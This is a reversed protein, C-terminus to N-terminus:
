KQSPNPTVIDIWEGVRVHHYKDGFRLKFREIVQDSTDHGGLAIAGLNQKTLLDLDREMTELTIPKHPGEGSAFRRQLNIGLFSLRGEPLPYHLDGVLGYLPASFVKASHDLIKPVTQHGCGIIIVNGKGEVNIVLAQEEIRGIALQRPIVGLSAMGEAIITAKPTITVEANPYVTPVPSYIKKKSLDVQEKGISFTNKNVWQQGGRHDLHAHSLFITDISEIEIGLQAMNHELPSPSNGGKNFGVDFLLTNHDTKILYSVGAEGQLSNDRTHWNVLPLISLTKTSGFDGIPNPKAESWEAAISDVGNQFAISFYLLASLAFILVFVGCYTLRKRLGMIKVKNL